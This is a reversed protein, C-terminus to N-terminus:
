MTWFFLVAIDLCPYQGKELTENEKWSNRSALIAKCNMGIEIKTSGSIPHGM